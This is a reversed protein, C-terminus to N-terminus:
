MLVYGLLRTFFTLGGRALENRWIFPISYRDRRSPDTMARIVTTPLYSPPPPPLAAAATRRQTTGVHAADDLVPVMEDSGSELPTPNPGLKESTASSTSHYSPSVDTAIPSKDINSSSALRRLASSSHTNTITCCLTLQSLDFPKDNPRGIVSRSSKPRESM